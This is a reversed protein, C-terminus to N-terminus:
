EELNNEYEFCDLVDEIYECIAYTGHEFGDEWEDDSEEVLKDYKNVIKKLREVLKETATNM